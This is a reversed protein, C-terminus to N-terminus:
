YVHMINSNSFVTLRACLDGSTVNLLLFLELHKTKADRGKLSLNWASFRQSAESQDCPWRRALPPLDGQCVTEDHPYGFYSQLTIGLCLPPLHQAAPVVAAMVNTRKEAIMHLVMSPLTLSVLSLCAAWPNSYLVQRLKSGLLMVIVTKGLAAFDLSKGSCAFQTPVQFSSAIGFPLSM